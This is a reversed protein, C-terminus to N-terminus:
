FISALENFKVKPIDDILDGFADVISEKQMAVWEEKFESPLFKYAGTDTGGPKM